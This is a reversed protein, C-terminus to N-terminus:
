QTKPTSTCFKDTCLGPRSYQIVPTHHLQDKAQFVDQLIRDAICYVPVGVKAHKLFATTFEGGECQRDEFRPVELNSGSFLIVKKELRSGLVWLNIMGGAFAADIIIYLTKGMPLHNDIDETLDSDTYAQSEDQLICLVEQNNRVERSWRHLGKGSFYFILNDAPCCSFFEAVGQRYEKKTRYTRRKAHTSLDKTNVLVSHISFGNATCFDIMNRIDHQNNVPHDTESGSILVSTMAGRAPNSAMKLVSFILYLRRTQTNSSLYKADLLISYSLIEPVCLQWSGPISVCEKQHTQNVERLARSPHKKICRSESSKPLSCYNNFKLGTKNQEITM